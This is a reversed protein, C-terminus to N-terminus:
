KALQTYNYLIKAAEARTVDQRPKFEGDPYGNVIGFYSAKGIYPTSWDPFSDRDAYNLLLKNGSNEMSRILIACLEERTVIKKPRFFGDDYGEYIGLKTTLAVYEYAWPAIETYDKYTVGPAKGLQDELDLLRVLVIAMEQRTIGWEPEFNGNDYGIFLGKDVTAAIYNKAWHEATDPMVAEAEKPAEIKLGEEVEEYKPDEVDPEQTAKPFVVGGTTGTSSSGPRKIPDFIGGEDDDEEEDKLPEYIFIEEFVKKIDSKVDASYTENVTVLIENFIDEVGYVAYGNVSDIYDFVSGDYSEGVWALAFDEGGVEDDTLMVDGKFAALLSLIANPGVNHVSLKEMGEPSVLLEYMRKLEAQSEIIEKEKGSKVEAEARIKEFDEVANVVDKDQLGKILNVMFILEDKADALSAGNAALEDVIKKIDPLTDADITGDIVGILTDLGMDTKAYTSLINYVEIRNLASDPMNNDLFSIVDELSGIGVNVDAANVTTVTSFALTSLMVVALVISLLKKM